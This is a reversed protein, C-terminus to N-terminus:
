RGLLGVVPFWRSCRSRGGRQLGQRRRGVLLYTPWSGEIGYGLEIALHPLEDVLPIRRGGPQGFGFEALQNRRVLGLWDCWRVLGLWECWRV